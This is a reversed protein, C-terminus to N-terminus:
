AIEPMINRNKPLHQLKNKSVSAKDRENKNLMKKNGKHGKIESKTNNDKNDLCIKKSEKYINQELSNDNNASSSKKKWVKCARNLAEGELPSETRNMKKEENYEKNNKVLKGQNNGGLDEDNLIDERKNLRSLKLKNTGDIEDVHEIETVKKDVEYAENDKRNINIGSSPKEAKDKEVNNRWPRRDVHRIESISLCETEEPAYYTDFAETAPSKKNQLKMTSNRKKVPPAIRIYSPLYITQVEERNENNTLDELIELVIEINQYFQADDTYDNSVAEDVLQQFQAAQKDTLTKVLAVCKRYLKQINSDRSVIPGIEKRISYVEHDNNKEQSPRVPLNKRRNSPDYYAPSRMSAKVTYGEEYYNSRPIIYIPQLRTAKNIYTNLTDELSNNLQHLEKSIRELEVDM